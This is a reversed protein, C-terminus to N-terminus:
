VGYEICVPKGCCKIGVVGIYVYKTENKTAGKVRPRDEKKNNM